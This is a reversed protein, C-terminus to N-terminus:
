TDKTECIELHLLRGTKRDHYSDVFNGHATFSHVMDDGAPASEIPEGFCVTL